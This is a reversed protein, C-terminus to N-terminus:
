CTRPPNSFSCKWGTDLHPQDLSCVQSGGVVSSSNCSLGEPFGLLIMQIWLAAGSSSLPSSLTKLYSM